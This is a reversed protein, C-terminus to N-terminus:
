RSMGISAATYGGSKSGSASWWNTANKKIHEFSKSSASTNLINSIIIRMIVGLATVSVSLLIM